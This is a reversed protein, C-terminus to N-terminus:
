LIRKIKMEKKSIGQAEHWHVEAKCITCDFLRVTATGKLKRWPASGYAKELRGIERISSGVAITDINAIEGILELIM